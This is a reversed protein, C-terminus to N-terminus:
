QLDVQGFWSYDQGYQGAGGLCGYSGSGCAYHTDDNFIIMHEAGPGASALTVGDSISKFFKQNTTSGIGLQGYENGGVSYCRGSSIVYTTSYSSEIATIEAISSVLTFTTKNDTGGTGLQGCDNLGASYMRRGTTVFFSCDKGCAIFSITKGTEIEEFLGYNGYSDTYGNGFQGYENSGSAYLTSDNKLVLVHEGGCAVQKVNTMNPVQAFTTRNTYDGNGMGLQGSSNSGCGWLTGDHKVAMMFHHGCSIQKVNSIGPVQTFKLKRDTHGTAYGENDGTTWITGDTKLIASFYHGCAIQAIEGRPIDSEIVNNKVFYWDDNSTSNGQGLQGYGNYGAGYLYGNELILSFSSGVAAGRMIAPNVIKAAAEINIELHCDNWFYYSFEGWDFNVDSSVDVPGNGYDAMVTITVDEETLEEGDIGSVYMYFSPSRFPRSFSISGSGEISDVGSTDFYVYLDGSVNIEYNLNVDVTIPIVKEVNMTKIRLNTSGNSRASVTLTGTNKSSNHSPVTAISTNDVSYEISETTDSPNLTYNISFNKSNLSTSNISAVSTTISTCPIIQKMNNSVISILSDWSDSTSVPYNKAILADVLRQKVNNGAQFLENIAGTLTKNNTALEDYGIKDQNAYTITDVTELWKITDKLDEEAGTLWNQTGEIWNYIVNAEEKTTFQNNLGKNINNIEKSM